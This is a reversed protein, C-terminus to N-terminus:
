KDETVPKVIAPSEITNKIEVPQIVDSPAPQATAVALDKASMLRETMAKLSAELTEVKSTVKSLHSNTNEETKVTVAKVDSMKKSNIIGIIVAGIASIVTAIGVWDTSGAELQM